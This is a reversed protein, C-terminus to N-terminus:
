GSEKTLRQTRWHAGFTDVRIAATEGTDLRLQIYPAEKVFAGVVVAREGKPFAGHGRICEATVDDSV